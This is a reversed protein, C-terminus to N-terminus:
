VNITSQIQNSNINFCRQWVIDNTVSCPLDNYCIHRSQELRLQLTKLDV